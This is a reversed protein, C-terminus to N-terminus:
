LGPARARNDCDTHNPRNGTLSPRQPYTRHPHQRKLRGLAAEVETTSFLQFLEPIPLQQDPNRFARGENLEKMIAFWDGYNTGSRGSAIRKSMM